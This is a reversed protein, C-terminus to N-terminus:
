KVIELEDPFFLYEGCDLKVTLIVEHRWPHVFEAVVRGKNGPALCPYRADWSYNQLHKIAVKSGINM